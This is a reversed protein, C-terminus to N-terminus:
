SEDRFPLDFTGIRSESSLVVSLFCDDEQYVEKSRCFGLDDDHHGSSLQTNANGTEAAHTLSRKSGEHGSLSVSEQSNM